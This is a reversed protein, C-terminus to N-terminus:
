SDSGVAAIADRQCEALRRVGAMALDTLADLQGRTFPTGEATGQIEVLCGDGTAVVNMDVAARADEEYCLDLLAVEGVIGVSVAAVSGILPDQAILGSRRIRRLALALAVYAGTVAATRTGGDAQIVDCDVWVTRPGLRETDTIARLSRGILRQIEQSRGNVKGRAADRAVRPRSSGPLMGYEASVWGKGSDRLFPPVGEEISAACLVHTDGFRVLASGDPHRLYDTVISVPRLDAAGRGDSRQM